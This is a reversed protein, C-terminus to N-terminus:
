GYISEHTSLEKERITKTLFGDFMTYLPVGAQVPLNTKGKPYRFMRSYVNELVWNNKESSIGWITVKLSFINCLARSKNTYLLM